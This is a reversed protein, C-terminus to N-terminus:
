AAGKITKRNAPGPANNRAGQFDLKVRLNFDPRLAGMKEKVVVLCGLNM